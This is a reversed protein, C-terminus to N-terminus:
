HRGYHSPNHARGRLQASGIATELYLQSRRYFVDIELTRIADKQFESTM